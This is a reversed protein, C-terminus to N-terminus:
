HKALWDLIFKADEMWTPQGLVFHNRGQRIVFDTVSSKSKYRQFNRKNLSAPMCHDESGALILLPNHEKKFDIKAAKTLSGRIARKSEPIAFTEYAKKQEEFPMGNTFVYQWKKFPMLYTKDLSTFFGLAALNSKYFSIEFPIVGKPPVSHIAIGAAGLGKNLLVQVLLGGLSHGILIPKEPLQSIIYSYHDILDDLSITASSSFPHRLRLTEADAEKEPWAPALTTYGQQEFFVIWQDWCHHSVFAGTIFVITKSQIIPM